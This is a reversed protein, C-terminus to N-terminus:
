SSPTPRLCAEAGPHHGPFASPGTETASELSGIVYKESIIQNFGEFVANGAM